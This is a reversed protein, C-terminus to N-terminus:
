GDHQARRIFHKYTLGPGKIIEVIPEFKNGNIPNVPNGICVNGPKIPQGVNNDGVCIASHHSYFAGQVFPRSNDVYLKLIFM